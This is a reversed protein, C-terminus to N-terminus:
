VVADGASRRRRLKYAGVGLGGLLLASGAALSSGTM